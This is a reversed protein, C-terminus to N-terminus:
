VEVYGKKTKEAILKDYDKKAAADDGFDKTKEQGSTGIKGYRVTHASGDLKIEWFKNSGDESFEFRRFDGGGEGSEEEDSEEEEEEEEDPPPPKPAAKKAAAPAAAKAPAAAAGGGGKEQYGKGTKERVLKDYLKQAKEDSGEDKVTVQGSAGIKGYRTFVQTGDKWIEWFKNSTGESFEFYRKATM